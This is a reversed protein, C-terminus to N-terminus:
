SPTVKCQTFMRIWRLAPQVSVITVPADHNIGGLRSVMRTSSVLGLLKTLGAQQVYAPGGSYGFDIHRSSVMHNVTRGGRYEGSAIGRVGGYPFGVIKVPTGPQVTSTPIDSFTGLKVPVKLVAWDQEPRNVVVTVPIRKQRIDEGYVQIYHKMRTREYYVNGGGWKSPPHKPTKLLHAATVLYTTNSSTRCVGFATGWIPLKVRSDILRHDYYGIGLFRYTHVPLGFYPRDTGQLQTLGLIPIAMLSVLVIVIPRRM